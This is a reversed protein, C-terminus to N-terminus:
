FYKKRYFCNCFFCVQLFHYNLQGNIQTYDRNKQDQNKFTLEPLKSPLIALKCSGSGGQGNSSPSHFTIQRGNLYSMAASAQEKSDYQVLIQNKLNKTFSSLKGVVGFQSFIWFLEDMMITASLDKLVVLLIRTHSTPIQNRARPQARIEQKDSYILNLLHTGNPRTMCMQDPREQYLSMIYKAEEIDGMQVFGIMKDSLLLTKVCSTNKTGGYGDSMTYSKAWTELDKENVGQPVSRIMLVPSPAPM